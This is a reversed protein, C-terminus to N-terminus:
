GSVKEASRILRSLPVEIADAIEECRDISPISEGHLVKWVYPHSTKLRAALERMSINQREMEKAVNFRFDDSAAM